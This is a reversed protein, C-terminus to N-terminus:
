VCCREVFVNQKIISPHTNTGKDSVDSPCVVYGIFKCSFFFVFGLSDAKGIDEKVDGRGVFFPM